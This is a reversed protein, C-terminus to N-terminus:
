NRTTIYTAANNRYDFFKRILDVTKSRVRLMPSGATEPLMTVMYIDPKQYLIISQVDEFDLTLPAYTTFGVHMSNIEDATQPIGLEALDEDEEGIHLMDLFVKIEERTIPVEQEILAEVIVVRSMRGGM